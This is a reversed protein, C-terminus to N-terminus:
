FRYGFRVGFLGNLDVGRENRWISGTSRQEIYRSFHTFGFSGEIEFIVSPSIRFHLYQNFLGGVRLENGINYQYHIPLGTHINGIQKFGDETGYSVFLSSGVAYVLFSSSKGAYFKIGPHFMFSYNNENKINSNNWRRNSHLVYYDRFGFSLPLTFSLKQSPIIFREFGIGFGKGGYFTTFPSVYAVNKAQEKQQAQAVKGLFVICILIVLFSYSKTHILKM